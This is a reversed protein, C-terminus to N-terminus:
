KPNRALLKYYYNELSHKLIFVSNNRVRLALYQLLSTPPINGAIQGQSMGKAEVYFGRHFFLQLMITEPTLKM